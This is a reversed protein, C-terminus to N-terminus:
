FDHRVIFFNPFVLVLAAIVAKFFYTERFVKDFIFGMPMVTRDGIKVRRNPAM